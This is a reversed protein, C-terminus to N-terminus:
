RARACEFEVLLLNFGRIIIKISLICKSYAYIVNEFPIEPTWQM